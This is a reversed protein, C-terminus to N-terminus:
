FMVLISSDAVAGGDSGTERLRPRHDFPCGTVLRDGAAKQCAQLASTTEFLM